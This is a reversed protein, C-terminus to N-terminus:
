IETSAGVGNRFTFVVRGDSYATAFAVLRHFLKGNFDAPLEGTESLGALFSAQYETQDPAVYANERVRQQILEAAVNLEEQLRSQGAELEGM